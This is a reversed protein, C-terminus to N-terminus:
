YDFPDSLWRTTKGDAKAAVNRSINLHQLDTTSVQFSSAIKEEMGVCYNLIDGANHKETIQLTPMNRFIKGTDKDHQSIFCCRLFATHNEVISILTTSIREKEVKKCEDIGDIIIFLTDVADFVVGLMEKALSISDLHSRGSSASKEYVYSLISTNQQALQCILSRCVGIFMSRNCDEARCYFYAVHTNSINACKEVLVSALITKGLDTARMLRVIKCRVREKRPLKGAGPKGNIWLFPERQRHADCWQAVLTEQLIWRGTMPYKSRAETATEQDEASDAAALWIFVERRRRAEEDQQRQRRESEIQDRIKQIEQVGVLIGQSDLLRKHSQLNRLVAQFDTRFTKWTAHFLQKWM